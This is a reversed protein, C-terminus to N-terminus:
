PTVGYIANLAEAQDATLPQTGVAAIDAVFPGDTPGAVPMPDPDMVDVIPELAAGVYPRHFGAPLVEDTSQTMAEPSPDGMKVETM